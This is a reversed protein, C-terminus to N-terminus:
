QDFRRTLFFKTYTNFSYSCEVAGVSSWGAEKGLKTFEEKDPTTLRGPLSFWIQNGIVKSPNTASVVQKVTIQQAGSIVDVNMFSNDFNNMSRLVTALPLEDFTEFFDPVPFIFDNM